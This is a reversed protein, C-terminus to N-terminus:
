PKFFHTCFPYKQRGKCSIHSELLTVLRQMILGAARCCEYRIQIFSKINVIIVSSQMKCISFAETHGSKINFYIEM